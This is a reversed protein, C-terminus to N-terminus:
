LGNKKKQSLLLTNPLNVYEGKGNVVTLGAERALMGWLVAEYWPQGKMPDIM